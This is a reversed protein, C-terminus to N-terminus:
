KAPRKREIPFTERKTRVTISDSPTKRIDSGRAVASDHKKVLSAYIYKAKEYEEKARNVRISADLWRPDRKIAKDIRVEGSLGTERVEKDIDAEIKKKLDSKNNYENELNAIIPGLYGLMAPIKEIESHVDKKLILEESFDVEFMDKLGMRFKVSTLKSYISKMIKKKKKPHVM